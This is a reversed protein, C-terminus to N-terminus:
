ALGALAAAGAEGHECHEGGVQCTTSVALKLVREKPMPSALRGFCTFREAAFQLLEHELNISSERPLDGCKLERRWAPAAILGPNATSDTNPLVESM